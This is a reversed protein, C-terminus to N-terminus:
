KFIVIKINKYKLRLCVIINMLMVNNKNNEIQNIFSNKYKVLNM